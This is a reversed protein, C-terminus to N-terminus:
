IGSIWVCFDQTKKRSCLLLFVPELAGLSRAKEEVYDVHAIFSNILAM